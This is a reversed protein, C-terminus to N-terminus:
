KGLIRKILRSLLPKRSAPEVASISETIQIKEKTESHTVQPKRRHSDNPAESRIARSKRSQINKKTETHEEKPTRNLNNHSDMPARYRSNRQLEGTEATPRPRHKDKYYHSKKGSKNNHKKNSSRPAAFVSNQYKEKIWKEANERSAEVVSDSPLESEEILSGIHEEIEYLSIIDDSTVLTIARGGKGARGTRGIRHIYSDKDLPVDYNIVLALDDIHIGRAAVDTAVLIHIRGNKFQEM